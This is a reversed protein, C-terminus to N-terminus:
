NIIIGSPAILMYKFNHYRAICACWRSATTMTRTSLRPKPAVTAALDRWVRGRRWLRSPVHREQGHRSLPERAGGDDEQKLGNSKALRLVDYCPEAQGRQLALDHPAEPEPTVDPTDGHPAPHNGRAEDRKTGVDTVDVCTVAHLPADAASDGARHSEVPDLGSGGLAIARTRVKDM